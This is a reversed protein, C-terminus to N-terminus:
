EAQTSNLTPTDSPLDIGFHSSVKPSMYYITGHQPFKGSVDFLSRQVTRPLKKNRLAEYLGPISPYANFTQPALVQLDIGTHLTEKEFHFRIDDKSMDRGLVTDLEKLIINDLQQLVWGLYTLEPATMVTGGFGGFQVRVRHWLLFARENMYREDCHMLIQFAMSAAVDPVFCRVRIGQRKIAQLRNLFLFGTTVSGGPSNIILDIAEGSGDAAWKAMAEEVASLNGGYIPGEIVATRSANPSPQMLRGSKAHATGSLLALALIILRLTIV